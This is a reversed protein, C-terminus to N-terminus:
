MVVLIYVANVIVAFVGVTIVILLVGLTVVLVFLIINILGVTGALAAAESRGVAIKNKVGGVIRAGYGSAIEAGYASVAVIRIHSTLISVAFDAIGGKKKARLMLMQLIDLGISM